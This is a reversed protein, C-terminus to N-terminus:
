WEEVILDPHAVRLRNLVSKSPRLEGLHIANLNQITNLSWIGEDTVVGTDSFEVYKLSPIQTWYQSMEKLRGDDIEKGYLEVKTANTSFGESIFNGGLREIDRIAHRISVTRHALYLLACSALLSALMWKRRHISSPM